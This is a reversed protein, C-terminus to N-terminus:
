FLKGKKKLASGLLDCQVTISTGVWDSRFAADRMSEAQFMERESGHKAIPLFKIEQGHNKLPIKNKIHFIV